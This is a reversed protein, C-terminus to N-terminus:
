VLHLKSAIRKCFGYLPTGKSILKKASRKMQENVLRAKSRQRYFAGGNKALAGIYLAAYEQTFLLGSYFGRSQAIYSLSLEAIRCASNGDAASEEAFDEDQLRLLPLLAQPRFWFASGYVAPPKDYATRPTIGCKTILENTQEFRRRSQWANSLERWCPEGIMHPVGLLGLKPESDFLGIVNDAFARSALLNDFTLDFSRKDFLYGNEFFVPGQVCCVYDYRPWVDRCVAIPAAVSGNTCRVELRNCAVDAFAARIQEEDDAKCALIIDAHAPMSKAYKACRLIEARSRVYMLLVIKKQGQPRYREMDAPLICNLHLRDFLDGVNNRRLLDEWIMSSDYDTQTKVYDLARRAETEPGKKSNAQVPQFSKRRLLPMWYEALLTYPMDYNVCFNDFGDDRFDSLDVFTDWCFGRDSFYKTFQLEFLGVADGYTKIRPLGSWFERFADSTHMRKNVVFFYSQMHEPFVGNKWVGTFDCAEYHRTIGWFDLGSRSEMEDFVTKFPLMPGYSTDNSFVIEDYERLKDWGAYESLAIKWSTSDFGENARVYIHATYREFIRRGEESLRGNCIIYLESLNQVLDDLLYQVYRGVIGESDYFVFLGLRKKQTTSGADMHM